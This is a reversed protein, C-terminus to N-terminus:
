FKLVFTMRWVCSQLDRPFPVQIKTKTWTPGRRLLAPDNQDRRGWSSPSSTTTTTLWLKSRFGRQGDWWLHCAIMSWMGRRREDVIPLVNVNGNRKRTTTHRDLHPQGGEPALWGQENSHQGCQVLVHSIAEIDQWRRDVRQNTPCSNPDIATIIIILHANSM